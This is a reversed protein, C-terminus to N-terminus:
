EKGKNLISWIRDKDEDNLDSFRRAFAVATKQDKQTFSSADIGISWGSAESASSYLEQESEDALSYAKKVKDAFGRPPKRKGTEIASLTSSPMDLKEAMDRLLEDSDLRLKRLFKGLSTLM